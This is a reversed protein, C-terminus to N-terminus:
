GDKYGKNPYRSDWNVSPVKFTKHTDKSLIPSNYRDSLLTDSTQKQLHIKTSRHQKQKERCTLDSTTRSVQTTKTVGQTLSKKVEVLWSKKSNDLSDTPLEREVNTIKSSNVQQQVKHTTTLPQRGLITDSAQRSGADLRNTASGRPKLTIVRKWSWRRLSRDEKVEQKSIFFWWLKSFVIRCLVLPSSLPIIWSDFHRGCTKMDTSKM